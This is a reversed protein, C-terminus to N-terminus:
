KKKKKAKSAKARGNFDLALRIWYDLEKRSKMGEEGVMVFGKMARGTFRMERCGRKELAEEYIAPDIRAMMEDGIIGVCMKGNVMFTLGGMMKKEEVRKQAALSERMRQALKEDYAM